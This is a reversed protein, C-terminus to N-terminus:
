DHEPIRRMSKKEGRQKKSLLRKEHAHSPPMTAKRKKKPKLAQRLLVALKELVLKRNTWQSRSEQSVIRLVGRTDIRSKLNELIAARQEESLSPSHKVDFELQVRTELKNVNQGGPGGSRTTRFKLESPPLSLNEEIFLM